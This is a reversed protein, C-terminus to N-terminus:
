IVRSTLNGSLEPVHIVKRWDTDNLWPKEHAYIVQPMFLLGVPPRLEFVYDRGMSMIMM